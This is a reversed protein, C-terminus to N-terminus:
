VRQVVQFPPVGDRKCSPFSVWHKKLMFPLEKVGQLTHWCNTSWIMCSSRILFLMVLSLLIFSQISSDHSFQKFSFPPHSLPSLGHPSASICITVISQDSVNGTSVKMRTTGSRQLPYTCLVLTQSTTDGLCTSCKRHPVEHLDDHRCPHFRPSM